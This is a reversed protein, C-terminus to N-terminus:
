EACPNIYCYEDDPCTYNSPLWRLITQEVEDQDNYCYAIEEICCYEACPTWKETISANSIGHLSIYANLQNYYYQYDHSKGIDISHTQWGGVLTFWRITWTSKYCASYSASYTIATGPCRVNAPITNDEIFKKKLLYAVAQKILSGTQSANDNPDYCPPPNVTWAYDMDAYRFENCRRDYWVFVTLTCPPTGPLIIMVTDKINVTWSVTDCPSDPIECGQQASSQQAITIMVVMVLIFLWVARGGLKKVVCSFLGSFSPPPCNNLSSSRVHASRLCVVPLQQM